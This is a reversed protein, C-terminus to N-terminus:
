DNCSIELSQISRQALDLCKVDGTKSYESLRGVGDIFTFVDNINATKDIMRPLLLDIGKYLEQITYDAQPDNKLIDKLDTAKRVAALYSVSLLQNDTCEDPNFNSNAWRKAQHLETM